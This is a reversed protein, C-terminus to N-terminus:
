LPPLKDQHWALRRPRRDVEAVEEGRGIRAGDHQRRRRSEVMPRGPDLLQDVEHHLADQILEVHTDVDGRAPFSVVTRSPTIASVCPLSRGSTNSTNAPTSWMRWAPSRPGMSSSVSSSAIAGTVPTYPLVSSQSTRRRSGWTAASSSSPNRM